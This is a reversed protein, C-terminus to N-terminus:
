GVREDAEGGEVPVWIWPGATAEDRASIANITAVVEGATMGTVRSLKAVTMVARADDETVEFQEDEQQQARFRMLEEDSM